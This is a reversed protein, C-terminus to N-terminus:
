LSQRANIREIFLRGPPLVTFEKEYRQLIKRENDNIKAMKYVEKVNKYPGHSAIKGAITPYLGRFQKYDTVYASNLDIKGGTAQQGDVVEYDDIFPSIANASRPQILIAQPALLASTIAQGIFSRRASKGAPNYCSCLPLLLAILLLIKYM